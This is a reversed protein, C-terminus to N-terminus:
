MVSELEKKHDRSSDFGKGGVRVSGSVSRVILTVAVAAFIALFVAFLAQFYPTRHYVACFPVYLIVVSLGASLLPFWHRLWPHAVQPVLQMKVLAAVVLAIMLGLVFSLVARSGGGAGFSVANGTVNLVVVGAIMGLFILMYTFPTLTEQWVADCVMQRLTIGWPNYM